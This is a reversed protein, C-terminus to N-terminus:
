MEDITQGILKASVIRWKKSKDLANMEDVLRQADVNLEDNTSYKAYRVFLQSAGEYTYVIEGKYPKYWKKYANAKEEIWAREEPTEIHYKKKKKTYAM